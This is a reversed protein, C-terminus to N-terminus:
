RDQGSEDREEKKEAKARAARIFSVFSCVGSVVGTLLCVPIIWDGLAWKRQAWIGLLVCLVPPAAVSLGLQTILSLGQLLESKKM